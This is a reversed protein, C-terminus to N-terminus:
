PQEGRDFQMDYLRRYDGGAALLEQHTGQEAVRGDKLLYIRDCDVITSLRHAIALVTRGTMLRHLAAQVLRESETDLASTAEDLILVPPNRLIARAIAIRQRQGGSLRVGREGIVTEYGQPLAVIFDHAHAQRAAREVSADDANAVGYRINGSVTDNFLFTEQTVLGIRSRLSQLTMDRVDTRNFRLTGHTVDYFRPVLNVLTTKGAGSSGVFAVREGARVTLDVHDLVPENEEYSFCIDEFRVAEIPATFDVADPRDRVTSETDLVEFIRDAAASSQQVALHVKSLKKVPEYMMFLAMSFAVFDGVGMGALRVYILVLSLGLTAIVVIIPEVSAGAKAVRMIRGFLSGTQEAFRRIEYQEMGFAKVVRVGTITEQLISVVDAIREQARQSNRRVKRGFIGIPVLCVPFVIFSAAALRADVIFLWVAMCVLTLPQKALDTIVTSVAREILMTDNTTRAILEGTRRKSFYSVSLDHLHTFMANRLDMVVRHGVWFICYRAFFDAAGRVLSVGPLCLALLVLLLLPVEAPDFITGFGHKVVWVLAGNSLAFLLGCAFGIVLRGRHPWAYRILRRYTVWDGRSDPAQATSTEKM